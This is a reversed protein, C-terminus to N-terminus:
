KRFVADHKFVPVGTNKALLDLEAVNNSGKLWTNGLMASTSTGHCKAPVKQKAAVHFSCLTGTASGGKTKQTVFLSYDGAQLGTFEATGKWQGHVNEMKVIGAAGQAKFTATRAPADAVAPLAMTVLGAGVAAGVLVKRLMM